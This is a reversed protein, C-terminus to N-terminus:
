QDISTAEVTIEVSSCDDQEKYNNFVYVKQIVRYITSLQIKLDWKDNIMEDGLYILENNAPCHSSTASAFGRWGEKTLLGFRLNYKM